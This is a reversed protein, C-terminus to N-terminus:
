KPEGIKRGRVQELARELKQIYFPQVTGWGDRLHLNVIVDNAAEALLNVPDVEKQNIPIERWATDDNFERAGSLKM